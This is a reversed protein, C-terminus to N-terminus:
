SSMHKKVIDMKSFSMSLIRMADNKVSTLVEVNDEFPNLSRIVSVIDRMCYCVLLVYSGM